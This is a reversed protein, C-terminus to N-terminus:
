AHAIPTPFSPTNHLRIEPPNVSLTSQPTRKNFVLITFFLIVSVESTSILDAQGGEGVILGGSRLDGRKKNVGWLACERVRQVRGVTVTIATPIPANVKPFM